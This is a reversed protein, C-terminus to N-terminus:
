EKNQSPLVTLTATNSEVIPLSQLSQNPLADPEDYRDVRIAYKGPAPFDYLTRITVGGCLSDGPKVIATTDGTSGFQKQLTRGDETLPVPKGASDVVHFLDKTIANDLSVDHNSFNAMCILLPLKENSGIEPYNRISVVFPSHTTAAVSALSVVSVVIENSYVAFGHLPDLLGVRVRYRGPRGIDYVGGLLRVQQIEDGPRITVVHLGGAPSDNRHTTSAIKPPITTVQAGEFVEIGSGFEDLLQGYPANGEWIALRLEHGSLNKLVVKIPIEWGIPVVADPSSILISFSPATNARSPLAQPVRFQATNSKVVTKSETDYRSIAITYLGPKNLEFLRDLMLQNIVSQGPPLPVSVNLTMNAIQHDCNFRQGAPSKQVTTGNADKVVIEYTKWLLCTGGGLWQSHDTANTYKTELLIETKPRVVQPVNIELAFSPKATSTSSIGQGFM